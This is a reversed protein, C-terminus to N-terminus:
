GSQAVLRGAGGRVGGACRQQSLRRRDIGTLDRIFAVDILSGDQGATVLADFCDERRAM